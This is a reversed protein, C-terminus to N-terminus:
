SSKWGTRFWEECKYCHEGEIADEKDFTEIEDNEFLDRKMEEQSKLQALM